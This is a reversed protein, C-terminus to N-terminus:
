EAPSTSSSMSENLLAIELKIARLTKDMAVRDMASQKWDKVTFAAQGKLKDLQEVARELEGLQVHRRARALLYEADDQADEPAAEDPKPSYKLTSFVMGMLQGELGKRGEPVMAAQRCKNHVTEFKTQLESLTPIGTKISAPVAALAAEVM